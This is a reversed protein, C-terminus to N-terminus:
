WPTCAARSYTEKYTDAPCLAIVGTDVDVFSGPVAVCETAKTAGTTDPVTVLGSPCPTCSSASSPALNYTNAPCEAADLNDLYFGPQALVCDAASTKGPAATTLGSPCATCAGAGVDSKYFGPVCPKAKLGDLAYGAKPTCLAKSEAGTKATTM